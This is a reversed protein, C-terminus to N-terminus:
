INEFRPNFSAEAKKLVWKFANKLSKSDDMQDVIEHSRIPDLGPISSFTCVFGYIDYEDLEDLISKIQEKM